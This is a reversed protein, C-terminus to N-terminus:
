AARFGWTQRRKHCWRFILPNILDCGVIVARADVCIRQKGVRKFGSVRNGNNVLPQSAAQEAVYVLRGRERRQANLEAITVMQAINQFSIRFLIVQREPVDDLYNGM